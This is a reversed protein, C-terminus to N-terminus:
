KKIQTIEFTWAYQCPPSHRLAAPISVRFGKAAAKWALPKDYGLLRVQAKDNPTLSALTIDSPMATEEEKAMYIAYVKGDPKQTFAFPGDKFPEIPRSDYIAKNNVQMWAGIKQLRDYAEEPWTGDPAPGLNLLLNGGKAVIDVLMHVLQRGSMFKPNPVWAWGGGMIICSEWPYPLMKDPVTNEPTLYNQHVGQVARDVVILEPQHERAKKVLEDMRIDQNVTRTKIFGSASERNKQQWSEHVEEPSKKAVWGGDLWLIDIKGYGTMLEMIQSHTFQVFKEWREPHEAPDYNVNRDLPPFYPYWYHECHWDPKSFYAGTWLGQERFADFIARTVDANEYIHFPCNKDTIKYHTTKTDFMCFGDHHKTTFVVYRMGAARAARAWRKPDFHIPNFTHKLNEYEKKYTFYETPNGGMTRECWGYDEPCLSWSEVIGWQSYAGWHMLLGFKLNQWQQIRQQIVPNPDPVYRAEEPQAFAAGIVAATMVFVWKKFMDIGKGM